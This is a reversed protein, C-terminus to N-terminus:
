EEEGKITIKVQAKVQTPKVCDAYVQPYDKKLKNKDIDMKEYPYVYTMTFYDNEIKKIGQEEMAQKIIDLCKKQQAKLQKITKEMENIDRTITVMNEKIEDDIVLDRREYIQGTYEAEFLREIEEDAIKNLKIVELDGDKAYHFCMLEDAGKWEITRGNIPEVLHRLMYDIISVQWTVYERNIASTTKHDAVFCGKDNKKFFGIIDATGAIWMSKYKFAISLEAVASDIFENIYKKFADGEKTFPDYDKYKILCELDKHINTGREAARALTEDSVGKYDPALHHKRLLQTISIYAREGNVEYTHDKENFKIEM